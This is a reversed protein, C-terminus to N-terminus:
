ATNQKFCCKLKKMLNLYIRYIYIFSYEVKKIDVPLSTVMKHPSLFPSPFQRQVVLSDGAM